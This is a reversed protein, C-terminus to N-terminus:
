QALVARSILISTAALFLKPKPPVLPESIKLRTQAAPPAPPEASLGASATRREVPPQRAESRGARAPQPETASRSSAPSWDQSPRASPRHRRAAAAASGQAARNRARATATAGAVADASPHGHSTTAAPWRPHPVPRHIARPARGPHAGAAASQRRGSRLGGHVSGNSLPRASMRCPHSAHDASHAVNTSDLGNPAQRYRAVGRLDCSAGM